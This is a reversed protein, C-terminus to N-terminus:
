SKRIANAYDICNVKAFNVFPLFGAKVHLLVFITSTKGEITEQEPSVSFHIKYKYKTVKM